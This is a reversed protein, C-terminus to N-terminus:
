TNDPLEFEACDYRSFIYHRTTLYDIRAVMDYKVRTQSRM